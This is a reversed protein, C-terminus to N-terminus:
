FDEASGGGEAVSRRHRLRAAARQGVMLLSRPSPRLLRLHLDTRVGNAFRLKFAHDGRLLDLEAVGEAAASLVMQGYLTRGPSGGVEPRIGMNYAYARDGYTLAYILAADADGIRLRYVRAMGHEALRRGAELHFRRRDGTKFVESSDGFRLEHLDMLVPLATQVDVPSTSVTLGGGSGEAVRLGRFIQKRLNRSPLLLQTDRARLDVYPCTVDRDPLRFTLQPRQRELAGALAGDRSLGELDLLDWSQDRFVFAAVADAVATRRDPAAVVDLHDAGMWGQGAAGLVRVGANGSWREVPFLGVTRGGVDVRLVQIPSAIGPVAAVSEAWQWSLFPSGVGSDAQLGRWAALMEPDAAPVPTVTVDTV